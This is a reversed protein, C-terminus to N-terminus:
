RTRGGTGRDRKDLDERIRRKAKKLHDRVKQDGIRLLEGIEVSTYGDRHYSFIEGLPDTLRSIADQIALTDPLLDISDPSAPLNGELVQEVPVEKPAGARGKRRNWARQAVKRVWGAPNNIELWREPHLRVLKWAELFGEQAADNADHITAKQRLLYVVVRAHEDRAFDLFEERASAYRLEQAIWTEDAGEGEARQEVTM